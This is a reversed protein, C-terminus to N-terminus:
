FALPSLALPSFTESNSVVSAAMLGHKYIVGIIVHLLSRHERKSITKAHNHNKCM